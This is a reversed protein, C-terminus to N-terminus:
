RLINLYNIKCEENQHIDDDDDDIKFFPDDFYEKWEM